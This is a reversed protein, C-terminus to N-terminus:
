EKTCCLQLPKLGIEKKEEQTRKEGIGSSSNARSSNYETNLSSFAWCFLSHLFFSLHGKIDLYAQTMGIVSSLSTTLILSYLSIVHIVKNGMYFFQIFHGWIDEM